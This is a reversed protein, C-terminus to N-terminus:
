AVIRSDQNHNMTKMEIRNEEGNEEELLLEKKPDKMKIYEGYLYSSFGWVCLVTSIAKAGGFSDGYALVGGVVNMSLIATMCIGSNLSTTLFVLGATGMFTFQWCFITFGITLWYSTTGLNFVSLSEKKMEGFGGDALMGVTALVTAALEMVFQMEMVLEYSKVNRSYIMDVLPLYLAFLLGAGLISFFGLFYQKQSVGEPRDHSHTLALLVSSLTLLVVCNLNKFTVKQKVIIVSLILNFALQTSLLLSATSVPLYSVGWSFLLNNVGLMLGIAISILLLKLTFSSFPWPKNHNKNFLMPLYIPVLLVPFGASQVFTSVWRSSGGHIFYFRSLLSSSVSGVVLAAYTIVLLIWYRLDRRTSSNINNDTHCSNGPSTAKHEDTTSETVILATETNVSMTTASSSSHYDEEQMINIGGDNKNIVINCDPPPPPNPDM